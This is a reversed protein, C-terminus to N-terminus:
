KDTFTINIGTDKLKKVYGFLDYPTIGLEKSLNNVTDGKTLKEKLTKLIEQENKEDHSDVISDKTKKNSM